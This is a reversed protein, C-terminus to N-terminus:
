SRFYNAVFCRFHGKGWDVCQGAGIGDAEGVSIWSKVCGGNEGAMGWEIKGEIGADVSSAM